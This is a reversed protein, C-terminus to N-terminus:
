QQCFKKWIKKRLVNVNYNDIYNIYNKIDLKTGNNWLDHISRVTTDFEKEDKAPYFYTIASEKTPTLFQYLM